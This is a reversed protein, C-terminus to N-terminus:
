KTGKEIKNNKKEVVYVIFNRIEVSKKEGTNLM